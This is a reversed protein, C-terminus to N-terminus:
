KGVTDVNICTVRFAAWRNLVCDNRVAYISNFYQKPMSCVDRDLVVVSNHHYDVGPVLFRIKLLAIKLSQKGELVLNRGRNIEKGRPSLEVEIENIEAVRDLEVFSSCGVLFLTM